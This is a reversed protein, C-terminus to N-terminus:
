PRILSQGISEWGLVGGELFSVPMGQGALEAALEQTDKGTRCYLVPVAPLMQLEALRTSVEALPINVAGEIHAHDFVEKPRVDVLAIQRQLLLQAVEEPKLAGAPRPLVPDLMARLESKRLAGQRGDIPRGQHFLVFTPVSQVGMQQALLPAKDVDVQVIKAKGQLEHSLAELEPLVTKCPGCWEAGFEVLVPIDSRLIELEFNQETIQPLPM